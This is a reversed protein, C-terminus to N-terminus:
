FLSNMIVGEYFVLIDINMLTFDGKNDFRMARINNRSQHYQFLLNFGLSSFWHTQRNGTSSFSV